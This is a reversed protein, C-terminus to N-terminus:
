MPSLFARDISWKMMYLGAGILVYGGFMPDIDIDISGDGNLNALYHGIFYLALAIPALHTTFRHLSKDKEDMEMFPQDEEETIPDDLRVISDRHPHLTEVHLYLPNGHTHSTASLQTNTRKQLLQTTTTRASTTPHAVFSEVAPVTLIFLIRLIRYSKM